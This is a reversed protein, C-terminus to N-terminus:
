TLRRKTAYGHRVCDVVMQLAHERLEVVKVLSAEEGGGFDFLNSTSSTLKFETQLAAGFEFVIVKVIDIVLQLELFEPFEALFAEDSLEILGFPSPLARETISGTGHTDHKDKFTSNGSELAIQLQPQPIQIIAPRLAGTAHLLNEGLRQSQM